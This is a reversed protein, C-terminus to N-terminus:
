NKQSLFKHYKEPVDEEEFGLYSYLAYLELDRDRQFTKNSAGPNIKDYQRRIEKEGEAGTHHPRTRSWYIMCLIRALRNRTPRKYFKFCHYANKSIPVRPDYVPLTKGLKPVFIEGDPKRDILKVGQASYYYFASTNNGDRRTEKKLRVKPIAGIRHLENAYRRFTTQDKEKSCDLDLEYDYVTGYDLLIMYMKIIQIKKDSEIKKKRGDIKM